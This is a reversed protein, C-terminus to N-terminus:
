SASLIDPTKDQLQQVSTRCLSPLQCDPAGAFYGVSAGLMFMAEEVVRCHMVPSLCVAHM